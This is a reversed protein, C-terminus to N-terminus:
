ARRHGPQIAIAHDDRSPKIRIPHRVANEARVGCGV